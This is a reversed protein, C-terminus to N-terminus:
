TLNFSIFFSLGAEHTPMSTDQGPLPLVNQYEYFLDLSFKVNSESLLDFISLKGGVTYENTNSIKGEATINLAVSESLRQKFTLDVVHTHTFTEDTYFPIRDTDTLLEFDYSFELQTAPIEKVYGVRAGHYDYLADSSFIVFALGATVRSRLLVNWIWHLEYEGTLSTGDPLLLGLGAGADNDRLPDNYSEIEEFLVSHCSAHLFLHRVIQADFDLGATPFTKYTDNWPITLRDTVPDSYHDSSGADYVLINELGFVASFNVKQDPTAATVLMQTTVKGAHYPQDKEPDKPIDFLHTYIINLKVTSVSELSTLTYCFNEALTFLRDDFTDKYQASTTTGVVDFLLLSKKYATFTAQYEATLEHPPPTVVGLVERLLLLKQYAEKDVGYLYILRTSNPINHPALAHIRERIVLEERVDGEEAYFVALKELNAADLPEHEDLMIRVREEERFMNEGHFLKALRELTAADDPDIDIIDMATKIEQIPMQYARYVDMLIVRVGVDRPKVAALKELVVIAYAWNKSAIAMECLRQLISADRPYRKQLQQLKYIAAESREMDFLVRAEALEKDILATQKDDASLSPSAVVTLLFAFFCFLTKKEFRM